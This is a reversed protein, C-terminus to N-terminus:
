EEGKLMEIYDDITEADETDDGVDERISKLQSILEAKDNEIMGAIDACFKIKGEDDDFPRDFPDYEALFEILEAYKDGDDMHYLKEAVEYTTNVLEEFEDSSCFDYLDDTDIDDWGFDKGFIWEVAEEFTEELESWAHDEITSVKDSLDRFDNNWLWEDLSTEHKEIVTFDLM